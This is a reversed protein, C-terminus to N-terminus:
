QESVDTGFSSIVNGNEDVYGFVYLIEYVVQKGIKYENMQAETLGEKVTGDVNTNANFYDVAINYANLTRVSDIDSVQVGEADVYEVVAQVYVNASAISTVLSVRISTKIVYCGLEEDYAVAFNVDAWTNSSENLADTPGYYWFVNLNEKFAALNEEDALYENLSEPLAYAFVMNAYVKELNGYVEDIMSEKLTLGGKVSVFRDIKVGYTGDANEVPAFGNACFDKAVPADFTGGSVAFDNSDGKLAGKINAEGSIAVVINDYGDTSMTISNNGGEITGGTVALEGLADSSANTIQGWIGRNAGYITGGAVTMYVVGNGPNGNMSPDAMRMRVATYTSTIEGGNVYLYADGFSNGSNDVAIAMDTGGNHIYSGSEITLVGGRNLIVTSQANWDRDVTSTIEVTGNKITLEGYNYFVIFNGNSNDTVSIKKGNLDITVKDDEAINFLGKAANNFASEFTLDVLLTIVDGEAAADIAAQLSAYKVDGIQAIAEAVGYTGDANPVCVLGEACREDAIKDFFSGGSVAISGEGYLSGSHVAIFNGGSITVTAGESADVNFGNYNDKGDFSGGTITTTGSAAWIVHATVGELGDCVFEGGEVTLSGYNAVTTHIAYVKGNTIKTTGHNDIAFTFNSINTIEGGNMTFSAGAEVRVTTADYGAGPADGDENVTAITGGNMVFEAGSYSVVAYGGNTDIANITADELTLSGYNFIGRTNITGAGDITLTGNNTIAYIHNTESNAQLGANITYGALDLTINSNETVTVSETVTVDNHLTVTAIKGDAFAFAEALTTFYYKYDGDVVSAVLDNATISSNADVSVTTNEGTHFNKAIVLESGNKLTVTSNGTAKFDHESETVNMLSNDLVLNASGEGDAENTQWYTSVNITADKASIIGQYFYAVAITLEVTADNDDGNVYIGATADGDFYRIMCTESTVTLSGPANITLKTGAYRLYISDTVVTGEIVANDTYHVFLGGTPVNITVGESVKFDKSCYWWDPNTNTITANVGDACVITGVLASTINEEIDRLIVVTDTEKAAALAADLTAFLTDGIQAAPNEIVYVQYEYMGDANKITAYGAGCYTSVDESFLGGKVSVSGATTYAFITKAVFTGANVTISSTAPLNYFVPDNGSTSTFSGGNIVVSVNSANTYIVNALSYFAGDEITLSVNNMMLLFLNSTNEGIIKGTKAESSDIVTLSINEAYVWFANAVSGTKIEFGALDLTISAYLVANKAMVADAILTVTQGDTAASIAAEVSDYKVDGIVAVSNDEEAVGFSGDENEVLEFGEALVAANTGTAAKATFTGGTVFGSLNATNDIGIKGNFTGNTISATVNQSSVTTIFISSADQGAPTFEGGNITISALNQNSNTSQLWVQGVFVGNNIVLENKATASGAFLRISRFTESVFKGGNITTKVDNNVAATNNNIVLATLAGAALNTNITFTGGNITLDGHNDIINSARDSNSAPAEGIENFTIAGTKNESSDNIVLTGKNVFMSYGTTSAHEHTITYGALDLTVVTAAPITVSETLTIDSLLTVTKGNAAALADALTTYSVDDVKAVAKLAVPEVAFESFNKSSVEVFKNGNEEMINYCGVLEGNHYVIAFERTESNHIPLRFTIATAFEEIKVSEEGVSITPAVNFTLKAPPADTTAGLVVESLTIKIVPKATEIKIIEEETVEIGKDALVEKLTDKAKDIADTNEQKDLNTNVNSVTNNQTVNEIIEEVTEKQEETLEEDVSDGGVTIDSSEPVEVRIDGRLADVDYVAPEGVTIVDSEDNPNTMKLALSVKFDPNANLIEPAIYIAATFDKVYDCINEYTLNADYAAVIPYEVNEEIELGDVPIVIWGFEGYNGALYCNDATLKGGNIGTFTLYFDCKYKAFKGAQAEELTENAKFNMVIQLPRVLTDDGSPWVMYDHEEPTLTISPLVTVSANPKSEGEGRLADVDYVAPEGVTIVDSADNPNTMKLALSVEFDPNADLIEPAIYIAATFDKVYDCINEYTLNADYSSVVPYETGEEIELGDTPIVIWGFEGYNGALYCNDATLKGGNIGTFTLYFDCKYKAFKGAQAEALTENAKFNMVIQLPRDVTDDGSPWVMYDHEEPTLTMAPLKAVTANPKTQEQTSPTTADTGSSNEESAAEIDEGVAYITTSLMSFCLSLVLILAVLKSMKSFIIKSKM